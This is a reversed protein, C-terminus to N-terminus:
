MLAPYLYSASDPASLQPDGRRYGGGARALWVSGRPLPMAGTAQPSLRLLPVLGETPVKLQHVCRVVRGSQDGSNGDCGPRSVERQGQDGHRLGGPRM